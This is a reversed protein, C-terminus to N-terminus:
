VIHKQAVLFYPVTILLFFEKNFLADHLNHKLFLKVIVKKEKIQKSLKRLAAEDAETPIGITLQDKFDQALEKKVKIAFANDIVQEEAKSFYERLLEAPAKQMGVLLRCRNDDDGNWNDIKSAVEKWGRLNFYGVCFDSRYSVDLTDRLGQVLFNEINDFIRPM